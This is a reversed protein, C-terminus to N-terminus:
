LPNNGTYRIEVHDIPVAVRRGDALTTVLLRRRQDVQYGHRQLVVQDYESIPPPQSKLWDGDIGPGALIPVSTSAGEPGLQVRGVTRIVDGGTSGPQDQDTAFRDAFDAPVGRDGNASNVAEFTKDDPGQAILSNPPAPRARESLESPGSTHSMWGLAFTAAIIAAAAVGRQWAHVRRKTPLALAPTARSAGENLALTPPASNRVAERWCQTELFGLACRKWGDPAQDFRALAVGLEAPSLVGDVIQDILNELPVDPTPKSM